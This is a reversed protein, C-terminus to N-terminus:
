NIILYYATIAIMLAVAQILAVRESKAKKQRYAAVAHLQRKKKTPENQNYTAILKGDQYHNYTTAM